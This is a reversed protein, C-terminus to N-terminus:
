KFRGRYRLESPTYKTRNKCFKSFVSLQSFGLIKGIETAKKKTNELMEYAGLLVYFDIWENFTRGTLTLITASLRREDIGTVKAYDELTSWRLQRILGAFRDLFDVGTPVNGYENLKMGKATEEPTLERKTYFPFVEEPTYKRYTFAM